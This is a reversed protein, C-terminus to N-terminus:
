SLGAQQAFEASAPSSSRSPDGGGSDARLPGIAPAPRAGGTIAADSQQQTPPTPQAPFSSPQGRQRDRTRTSRLRGVDSGCTDLVQEATLQLREQLTRVRAPEDFDAPTPKNYGFGEPGQTWTGLRLEVLRPVINTEWWQSQQKPEAVPLAAWAPAIDTHSGLNRTVTGKSVRATNKWLLTARMLGITAAEIRQAVTVEIQQTDTEDLLHVFAPAFLRCFIRNDFPASTDTPIPPVESVSMNRFAIGTSGYVLVLLYASRKVHIEQIKTNNITAETPLLGYYAEMALLGSSIIALMRQIQRLEAALFDDIYQLLGAMAWNASDINRFRQRGDEAFTFIQNPKQEVFSL